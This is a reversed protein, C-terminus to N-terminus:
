NLQNRTSGPVPVTRFSRGPRAVTSPPHAVPLVTEVFRHLEAGKGAPVERPLCPERRLVDVREPALAPAPPQGELRRPAEGVREGDRDLPESLAGSGALAEAVARGIGQATGTVLAVKGALSFWQLSM